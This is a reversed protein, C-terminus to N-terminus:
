ENEWFEELLEIQLKNIEEINASHQLKSNVYSLDILKELEEAKNLVYDLPYIGLKIDRVFNNQTLPLTLNQEVLLQQCELLLRILHSAFKTDYGFKNTLEKRGTMNEKKIELKKRQSYSYGKFTHYLKKSIFLHSNEKLKKWYKNEYLISTTHAYFFEVINPNNGIALHIFKPLSYITYDIDGKQNRKSTSIKESLTVQECKKLGIVYEKSPIFVGLFDEDSNPTVTGYLQSGGRIKYILNDLAMKQEIM